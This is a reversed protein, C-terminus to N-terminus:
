FVLCLGVIHSLLGVVPCMGQSFWLELSVHVGANMAASYVLALIYICDLYGNFSHIFYHYM